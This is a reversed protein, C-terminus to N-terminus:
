KPRADYPPYELWVDPGASRYGIWAEVSDDADTMVAEVGRGYIAIERTAMALTLCNETIALHGVGQTVRQERALDGVSVGLIPWLM